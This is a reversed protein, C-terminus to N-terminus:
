RVTPNHNSSLRGAKVRTKVKMVLERNPKALATGTDSQRVIGDCVLM